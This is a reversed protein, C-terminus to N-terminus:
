DGKKTDEDVSANLKKLEQRRRVYGMIALTLLLPVMIPFLIPFFLTLVIAAVFGGVGLMIIGIGTFVFFLVFMVCFLVVVAIIVGGLAGSITVVAIPTLLHWIAYLLLLIILIFVPM